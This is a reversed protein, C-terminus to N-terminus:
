LPLVSTSCPVSESLRAPASIARPWVTRWTSMVLPREATTRTSLWQCEPASGRRSPMASPSYGRASPGDAVGAAARAARGRDIMERAGAGRVGPRESDRHHGVALVDALRLRDHERERAPEAM